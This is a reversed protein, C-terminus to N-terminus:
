LSCDNEDSLMLIALMSDPRLFARRQQLINDDTPGRSNAAQNVTLVDVPPKPDVLFRYWAELGMEYGCGIETAAMIHSSLDNQKATMATAFSQTDTMTWALFPAGLGARPLAGLLWAHDNQAANQAGQEPCVDGGFDGLSSTIVGIHVDKVPTFERVLGTPCAAAPDTAIVSAQTGSPNICEPNALRNLLYTVASALLTQKESMGLSNDVMILVDVKDFGTAVPNV